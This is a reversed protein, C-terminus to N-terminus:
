KISLMFKYMDKFKFDSFDFPEINNPVVVFDFIRKWRDDNKQNLYEWIIYNLAYQSYKKEDIIPKDIDKRGKITFNKNSYNKIINKYFDKIDM